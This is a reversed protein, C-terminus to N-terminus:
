KIIKIKHRRNNEYLKINNIKWDKAKQEMAVIQLVTNM